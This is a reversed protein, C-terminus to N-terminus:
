GNKVIYLFAINIMRTENSGYKEVIHSHAGIGISHNHSGIYVSHGHTGIDVYHNHNGAANTSITHSHNGATSTTATGGSRDRGAAPMWGASSTDKLVSFTHNHNGAANTSGSHTHNGAINTWKRGHNFNAALKTGYDFSSATKTGYDFTSLGHDHSEIAGNQITLIARNKDIGKGNDLGRVIVGRMDPLNEGYISYLIPQTIPNIARGDVAIFGDPPKALPCKKPFYDSLGGGSGYLIAM